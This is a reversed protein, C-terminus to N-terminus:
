AVKAVLPNGGLGIGALAHETQAKLVAFFFFLRGAL